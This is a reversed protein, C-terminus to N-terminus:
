RAFYRVNKVGGVALHDTCYMIDRVAVPEYLSVCEGNM